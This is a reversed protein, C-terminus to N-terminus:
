VPELADAHRRVRLAVVWLALVVAPCLGSRLVPLLADLSAPLPVVRGPLYAVTLALAHVALLGDWRSAGLMALLLFGVADYWALQYGAALLYALWLVASLRLFPEAAPLDRLLTRALAIAVVVAGLGVLSRALGNPLVTELASAVWRWPTGGSVRSRADLVPRLAEVGGVALYLAAGTVAAVAVPRVASTRRAAVLAAVSLGGTVKVACGAALWLGTRLVRGRGTLALLLPLCLLVDVHAGAVLHLLLLPNCTWLVHARGRDPAWRHLGVAVGAFGLAAILALLRLVAERSEGGLAAAAYHSATAVPGYVSPQDEWPPEVAAVVPDADLASPVTTYPSQGLVAIRGYAAYSGIDGNGLPPVVLLAAAGILGAALLVRAPPRWGRRLAALGLLLSSGGAAASAWMLLTVPWIPALNQPGPTLPVVAASPGLAGVVLLVLM